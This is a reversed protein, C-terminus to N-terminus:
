NVAAVSVAIAIAIIAAALAAIALLRAQRLQVAAASNSATLAQNAAVLEELAKAMHQSEGAVEKIAAANNLVAQQLETIQQGIMGHRATFAPAAASVIKALEPAVTRLLTIWTAM